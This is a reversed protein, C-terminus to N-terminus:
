YWRAPAALLWERDADGLSETGAAVTSRHWVLLVVLVVPAACGISLRVPGSWKSRRQLEPTNMGGRDM